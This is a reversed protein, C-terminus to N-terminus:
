TSANIPNKMGVM